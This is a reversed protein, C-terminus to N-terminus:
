KGGDTSILDGFRDLISFVSWDSRVMINGLYHSHTETMQLYDTKAVEFTIASFVEDVQMGTRDYLELDMGYQGAVLQPMKFQVRIASPGEIHPIETGGIYTGVAFVREGRGNTVAFAIKPNNIRNTPSVKMEVAVEAGPTLLESRQNNEDYM